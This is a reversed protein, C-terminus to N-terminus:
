SKWMECLFSFALKSSFVFAKTVKVSVSFGTREDLFHWFGM